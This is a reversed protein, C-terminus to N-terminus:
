RAIIFHANTEQGYEVCIANAGTREKTHRFYEQQQYHRKPLSIEEEVLHQDSGYPSAHLVAAQQGGPDWVV